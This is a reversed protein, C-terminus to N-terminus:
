EQSEHERYVINYSDDDVKVANHERVYYMDRERCFLYRLGAMAMAASLVSLIWCWYFQQNQVMWVIQGVLLLAFIVAGGMSTSKLNELDRYERINLKPPHSAYAFVYFGLWVELLLGLVLPVVIYWQKGSQGIGQLILAVVSGLYLALYTLKTEKWKQESVQPVYYDGAYIRSIHAKGTDPSQEVKEVYGEFFRHYSKNYSM